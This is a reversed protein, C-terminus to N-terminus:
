PRTTVFRIEDVYFASAGAGAADGVDFWGFNGSSPNLSSLPIMVRHWKDPQLPYDEIFDVLEARGLTQNDVSIMEVYLEQDATASGNIYFIMYDYPSTDFGWNDFTIAGGEPELTIEIANVGQYVSASSFLDATGSWPDLSWGESLGDDYVVYGQDIQGSSPTPGPTPPIPTPTPTPIPTFSSTDIPAASLTLSFDTEQTDWIKIWSCPFCMWHGEPYTRDDERQQMEARAPSDYFSATQYSDINEINLLVSGGNSMQWGLVEQMEVPAYNRIWDKDFVGLQNVAPAFGLNLTEFPGLEYHV